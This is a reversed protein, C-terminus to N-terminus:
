LTKLFKYLEYNWRADALANHENTQKPYVGKTKLFEIRKNIDKESDLTGNNCYTKLAREDLIQKLDICYIPFNIMNNLNDM